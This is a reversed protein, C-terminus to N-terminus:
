SQLIFALSMLHSLICISPEHYKLVISFLNEIVSDCTFCHLQIKFYKLVNKLLVFLGLHFRPKLIVINVYLSFIPLLLQSLYLIFVLYNCLKISGCM